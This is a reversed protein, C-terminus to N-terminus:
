GLRTAPGDHVLVDQSQARKRNERQLKRFKWGALDEPLRGLAREVLMHHGKLSARELMRHIYAPTQLRARLLRHFSQPTMTGDLMGIAASKLIGMRKLSPPVKHTLDPWALNIAQPVMLRKAHQLDEPITPDYVLYAKGAADIGDAADRWEPTTWDFTNRAYAYRSEFPADQMSLSSQPAFAVVTCGPALPAFVCAGYGGMSSGYMSVAPYGAFLGRDRLFGLYAWLDPSRFWDRTKIMVGLSGWGQGRALDYAWPKRPGEVTLSSLNDFGVLLRDRGPIHVVAHRETEYFTGGVSTALQRIQEFDLNRSDTAAEIM